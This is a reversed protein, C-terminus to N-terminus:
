LPIEVDFVQAPKGNIETKEGPKIKVAKGFARSSQLRETLEGIMSNTNATVLAVLEINMKRTSKKAKVENICLQPPLLSSIEELREPLYMREGSHYQILQMKKYYERWERELDTVRFEIKNKNIDKNFSALDHKYKFYVFYSSYLLKVFLLLFVASGAALVIRFYIEHKKKTQLQTLKERVLNLEFMITKGYPLGWHLASSVGMCKKNRDRIDVNALPNWKETYIGLVEAMFGDIGMLSSTGGTLLIKDVNILKKRSM